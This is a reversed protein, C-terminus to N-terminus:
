RPRPDRFEVFRIEGPPIDISIISNRPELVQGTMWETASSFDFAPALEVSATAEPWVVAPNKGEKFVGDNNILEVVWGARNRNIQYQVPDGGIRVPMTTAAIEELVSAPIAETDPMPQAGSVGSADMIRLNGTATLRTLLDDPISRAHAQNMLIMSGHAAARCLELSFFRSLSVEGALLIFPYRTMTQATVTNLMVDCIEGYPTPHLYDAEPNRDMDPYAIRQEGFFLRRELLHHIQRDGATKELVGWTKGHFPAYGALHDLIILLPTHPNGRDHGQMFQNIRAAERGHSTLEWPPGDDVFFYNISNEPTIMAAGAFWAHLWMRRYLSLSHGADLGTVPSSGHQLEGRTTVSNGFWPSVQVTWPINWQRAAGRAFAFKSQTFRINEGIELGIVDAGWEAAYAEYHSHGTVSIIRGRKAQRHWYFYERLQRYCEERTQPLPLFGRNERPIVFDKQQEDFDGGLVARWWGTDGQLQHFHYGWEGLQIASFTGTRDMLRLTKEDDEGVVSTGGKVQMRGGDPPYFIAPWGIEALYAILPESAAVATPGPDFGRGLGSENMFAVLSRLVEPDSPCGYLTFVVQDEGPLLRLSPMSNFIEGSEAWAFGAMWVTLCARLVTRGAAAKWRRSAMTM